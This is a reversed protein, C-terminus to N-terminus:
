AKGQALPILADSHFNGTSSDMWVNDKAEM